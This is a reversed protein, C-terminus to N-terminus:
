CNHNRAISPARRPILLKKKYPQLSKDVSAEFHESMTFYKEIGKIKRLRDVHWIWVFIFWTLAKDAFIINLQIVFYTTNM